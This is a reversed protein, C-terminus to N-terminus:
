GVVAARSLPPAPWCTPLTVCPWPPKRMAARSIEPALAAPPAARFPPRPPARRRVYARSAAGGEPEPAAARLGAQSPWRKALEKAQGRRREVRQGGPRSARAAAGGAAGSPRMAGQRSAAGGQPRGAGGSRWSAAQGARAM